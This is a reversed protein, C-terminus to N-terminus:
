YSLLLEPIYASHSLRTDLNAAASHDSSSTTNKASGAFPNMALVDLPRHYYYGQFYDCGVEKLFLEQSENEVGEAITSCNLIESLSIIAKIIMESKRNYGIQAVFSRDIKVTHAPFHSLKSLSSYGTGFDDIAIGFAM